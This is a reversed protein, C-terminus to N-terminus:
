FYSELTGSFIEATIRTSGTPHIHRERARAHHSRLMLFCIVQLCSIFYVDRYFCASPKVSFSGM